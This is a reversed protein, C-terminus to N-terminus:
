MSEGPPMEATDGDEGAPPDGPGTWGYGPPLWHGDPTQTWGTAHREAARHRDIASLKTLISQKVEDFSRTRPAYKGGPRFEAEVERRIQRREAKVLQKRTFGPRQGYKKPNSGQLLLRLLSDSYIRRVHVQGGCAFERDVGEVARQWATLELPTASMRLATRCNAAFRPDSEQHRYVTKASVGTARCADLVCGTKVLARLFVCKRADTFADHRPRRADPDPPADAKASAEASLAPADLEWPLPEDDAASVDASLPTHETM